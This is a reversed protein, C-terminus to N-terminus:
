PLRPLILLSNPALEARAQQHPEKFNYQLKCTDDPSSAAVQM